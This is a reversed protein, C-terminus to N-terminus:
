ENIVGNRRREGSAASARESNRQRSDETRSLVHGEDERVWSESPM